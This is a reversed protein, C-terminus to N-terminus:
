SSVQDALRALNDQLWTAYRRPARGLLEGLTSTEYWRGERLTRFYFLIKEVISAPFGSRLLDDRTEQEGADVFTIAKGLATSLCQAMEDGTLADGVLEYTKGEHGMQTLAVVAAAAIDRPDIMTVKRGGHPEILLGRDRVSAWGYPTNTMFRVPRLITWSMPSERLRQENAGHAQWLDEAFSGAGFNSLYVIHRVGTERAATFANAELAELEPVPPALVFVREIGAFAKTLTQPKALDGVVVDIRDSFSAKAPDRVLARVRYEGDALQGVLESGVTGTAGIVLILPRDM